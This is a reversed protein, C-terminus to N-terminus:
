FNASAVQKYPQLNVKGEIWNAVVNAVEEWGGQGCIWHGRGPFERYEVYSLEDTYAKANKEVLSSPIIQDEAGAVFFLPVHQVDVDVKGDEGLCDRLVSRSDNTATVLWAKETDEPTMTNCFTDQFSQLDMIFPEDDKLPNIILASNKVFGLDFSVMANPAVSSIPVGLKGLGNNILIQTILGGVSHGIIIPPEEQAKAIDYFQTILTALRLEGLDAPPNQRLEHPEGEHLKWSPAICNYGKETFYEVWKDWSKGNQFMGHIFLITNKM